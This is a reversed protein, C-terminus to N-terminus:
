SMNCGYERTMYQKSYIAKVVSIYVTKFSMDGKYMMCYMVFQNTLFCMAYPSISKVM